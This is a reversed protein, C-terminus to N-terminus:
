YSTRLKQRKSRRDGYQHLLLATLILASGYLVKETVPEDNISHGLLLSSVPTILTILAVRTAPLHTLVYFYLSLGASTAVIGLYVTSLLSATPLDAPWTNGSVFWSALYVPVAFYLGGALQDLAPVGAGIRKIAVACASQIFAALVVAAIGTAAQRGIELASGFMVLLGVFGSVYSLLKAAGLSSEKLWLAALVATMMPSLGFIVSVWGSPIFQAGWYVSLMAGYLQLGVTAYTLFAGRHWAMSRKRIVLFPLLCFLGIVMRAAAGFLFGPGQGSWKIALPTTSWLLVVFLFAIWVRM